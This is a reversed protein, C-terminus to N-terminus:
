WTSSSRSSSARTPWSGAWGRPALALALEIHEGLTRRLIPEARQLLANLDLAQPQLVQRRSFALLQQTIDATREAARQIHEVDERVEDPHRDAALVFQASGLIVSMQNNAEHAIGGALRGVTEM